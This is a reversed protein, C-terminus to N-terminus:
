LRSRRKNQINIIKVIKSDFLVTDDNKIILKIIDKDTYVIEQTLDVTINRDWTKHFGVVEYLTGNIKFCRGPLIFHM